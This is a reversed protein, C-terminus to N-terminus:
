EAALLSSDFYEALVYELSSRPSAFGQNIHTFSVAVAASSVNTMVHGLAHCISVPLLLKFTRWRNAANCFGVFWRLLFFIQLQNEIVLTKRNSEM